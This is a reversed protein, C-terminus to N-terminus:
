IQLSKEPQAAGQRSVTSLRVQNGTYRKNCKTLKNDFIIEKSSTSTYVFSNLFLQTLPPCKRDYTGHEQTRWLGTLCDRLRTSHVKGPTQRCIAVPHCGGNNVACVGVYRCNVGDGQYGADLLCWVISITTTTTTSTVSTQLCKTTLDPMEHFRNQM